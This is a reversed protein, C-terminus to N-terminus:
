CTAKRNGGGSRPKEKAGLLGCKELQGILREFMDEMSESSTQPNKGEVTTSLVQEKVSEEEQM